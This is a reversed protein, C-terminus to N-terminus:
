TNENIIPRRVHALTLVYINKVGAKKLMKSCEDTTAGTTFIDDILLINKGKLKQTDIVKFAKNLNAQRERRTLKTQTPTNIVRVLNNNEIPLNLVEEFKSAILSAQNFGRKRERSKFLPVPVIIDVEWDHKIFEDILLYSIYPSLYKGKSYKLKYILTKIKGEYIFPSRAFEYDKKTDKCSLCYSGRGTLSDGCKYCIHSNNFPLNKLCEDCLGYKTKTSLEKNCTICKIDKVFLANKFIVFPKKLVKLFKEM